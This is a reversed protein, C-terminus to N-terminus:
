AAYSTATVTFSPTTGTATFALRYFPAKVTFQQAAGGAATLATFTDAPNAAYFNTGDASWQVATALSPTTGTVATAALVVSIASGYAQSAATNISATIVQAAIITNTTPM